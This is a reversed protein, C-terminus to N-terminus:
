LKSSKVIISYFLVYEVTKLDFFPTYQPQRELNQCKQTINEINPIKEPNIQASLKKM